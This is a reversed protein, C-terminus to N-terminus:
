LGGRCEATFSPLDRYQKALEPDIHVNKLSSLGQAFELGEITPICIMSM